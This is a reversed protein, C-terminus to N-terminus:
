TGETHDSTHCTGTGQDCSTRAIPFPIAGIRRAAVESIVESFSARLDPQALYQHRAESHLPQGVWMIHFFEDVASLLKTLTDRDYTHALELLTYNTTWLEAECDLLQEYIRRAREHDARDRRLLAGFTSTSFM